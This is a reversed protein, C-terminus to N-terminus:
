TNQRNHQKERSKRKEKDKEHYRKEREQSLGLLSLLAGGAPPLRGTRFTEARVAPGPQAGGVVGDSLSLLSVPIRLGYLEVYPVPPFGKRAYNRITGRDIRIRMAELLRALHHYPFLDTNIVCLDIIPAGLRMGPYFPSKAYCLRRCDECYFRKVFVHVDRDDGADSMIRVFLKRKLDHGRVKGGCHPCAALDTYRRDEVSLLASQILDALISPVLIRKVGFFGGPM